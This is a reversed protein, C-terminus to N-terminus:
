HAPQSTTQRSQIDYRKYQGDDGLLIDWHHEINKCSWNWFFGLFGSLFVILLLSVCVSQEVGTWSLVWSVLLAGGIIMPNMLKAMVRHFLRLKPPYLAMLGDVQDDDLNSLGFADEAARAIVKWRNHDGHLSYLKTHGSAVVCVVAEDGRLGDLSAEFAFSDPLRPIPGREERMDQPLDIFMLRDWGKQDEVSKLELSLNVGDSWRCLVLDAQRILVGVEAQWSEKKLQVSYAGEISSSKPDRVAIFLSKPGMAQAIIKIDDQADDEAFKRLFLAIPLRHEKAFSIVSDPGDFTPRWRFARRVLLISVIGSFMGLLPVWGPISLHKHFPIVGFTALTVVGLAIAIGLRNWLHVEFRQKMIKDELRIRVGFRFPARQGSNSIPM